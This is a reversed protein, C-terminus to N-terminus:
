IASDEANKGEVMRKQEALVFEKARRVLTDRQAGGPARPHVMSQGIYDLIQKGDTDTAIRGMM